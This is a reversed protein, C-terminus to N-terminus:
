LTFSVFNQNYLHWLWPLSHTSEQKHELIYTHQLMFYPCMCDVTGLLVGLLANNIYLSDPTLASLIYIHTHGTEQYYGNNSSSLAYPTHLYLFLFYIFAFLFENAVYISYVICWKKILNHRLWWSVSIYQTHVSSRTQQVILTGVYRPIGSDIQPVLQMVCLAHPM